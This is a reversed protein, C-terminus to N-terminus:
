RLSHKVIYSTTTGNSVQIYYMGPAAELDEIHFVNSGKEVLVDQRYIILGRSDSVSISSLGTVDHSYFDIYFSGNSPNPYTVLNSTVTQEGCNVSTINFKKSAGDTDFQTLRYYTTGNAADTDTIAYEIVSTSNGAAGLTNLIVWNVGDRSKEVVFHNTNHESATSWTIDVDNNGACKAQFSILEIPLGSIYVNVTGTVQLDNGSTNNIYWTGSSSSGGWVVLRFTVNVNSAVNQLATITSLNISSQLNGTSNTIGGWTISSGIDVFGGNNLQYQWQGTTAGTGSRRINYAPIESFSVTYGPKAQVGFTIYDNGSVANAFSTSNVGTGGWASGAATGSTLVIGAERTLKTILVNQNASITDLPNPGFNNPGGVLGGVEWAALPAIAQTIDASLGSPQTLTYNGADTGSISFNSTVAIGTGVNASVFSGAQILTVVDPSVVGVLSGGTITATTTGDYPKNQATAGVITVAKGTIDGTASTNILSYNSALGGNTGDALTYAITAVKGTGVNANLYTGVAASITVTETGVFGSLTGPTVTGSTSSANYIKSAISALTISLAKSTITGTASTNALTYNAALGTGDTLTYVLTATKGTGVNADLYTGVAASVTVTESGVFGSLTGPTVAGSTASGNYIKSAITAASISLAKATIDGTAITNALTYNAALGTGNALTYVITATKGTGVNADSYTGTATSITLTESSVLGSLTGSTVAGSTSSADYIKSAISAASISLAKPSVTNSSAATIANVSSAAGGGSLVAFVANNYSGAALTASFQVYVTTGSAVSVSSGYGSGLSTSVAYGSQATVTINGSLNSGSPTFSIGTSATGYTSTLNSSLTVSNLTPSAAATWQAYLTFDTIQGHTYPFSIATGGSAATYWGNFTYSALIPIGPSTVAGGTTTSGNSITSGGQSDYTVTLTNAAWQAYLTANAAGMTYSQGNTYSTGTGNALTNWGSFSYGSKTFANSTLNASANYAITQSSMSGSGTNADFTVTYNNLTWKAYLVTNAAPMTYSSSVAIDTGLGTALTNWGAFTSGTKALPGSNTLTTVSASAAYPSSADVPTTGSTNGNGNYTLSYSTTAATLTGGFTLNGQLGGTGALADEAGYAYFRFTITTQGSTTTIISNGTWSSNADPSELVGSTNTLSVNATGVSLPTGYSDVNWRWQFRRPGTGSRGVGFSLTPNSITYGAGATISFEYYKGTNVIGGAAAGNTSGIDWGTARSNGTSASTTVGTKVLASVTLNSITTGNYSLSAVNGTASAFSYTGTFTQGWGVNVMGGFVLVALVKTFNNQVFRAVRQTNNKTKKSDLFVM